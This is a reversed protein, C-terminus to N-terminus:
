VSAKEAAHSPTNLSQMFSVWFVSGEGPISEVWARGGHAEAIRRVIALGMGTGPAKNDLRQFLGFIREQHDPHIGMGNDRVFLRVEGAVFQCAGVTIRLPREPARAHHLANTLLNQLVQLVRRRDARITKVAFDTIIETTLDQHVEAECLEMVEQMIEELPCPQDRSEIRGVRSLELLDDVEARMKSAARQVRRADDAIDTFCGREIDEIMHSCFGLITVLPSKLDHSATYVFQELEGNKHDLEETKVLLESLQRSNEEEVEKLHTIDDRVAIYRVVKGNADVDPTITTKVWYYRGSKTKNCIDGRWVKGAAISRYMDSFFERPHRRSNIIRHDQGILEERSYGSIDCFQDNVYTIRGRNDTIAVIAHHNLALERFMLEHNLRALQINVDRLQEEAINRQKVEEQLRDNTDSLTPLSLMKPIVPILAIVTACSVVATIGKWVGAFRYIPYWFIISEILHGIGCCAIFAIFLWAVHPIPTPRKRIFWWILVPIAMYAAWIMGDSIIHLWGLPASWQGCNWRPPFGRTDFLWGMGTTNGSSSVGSTIGAPTNVTCCDSGSGLAFVRSTAICVAVM